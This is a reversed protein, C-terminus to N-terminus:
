GLSEEELGLFEDYLFTSSSFFAKDIAGADLGMWTRQSAAKSVFSRWGQQEGDKRSM